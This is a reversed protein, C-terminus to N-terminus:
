CGPVANERQKSRLFPGIKAEFSDIDTRRCNSDRIPDEPGRPMGPPDLEHNLVGELKFLITASSLVLPNDGGHECFVQRIWFEEESGNGPEESVISQNEETSGKFGRLPVVNKFEVMFALRQFHRFVGAKADSPKEAVSTVM